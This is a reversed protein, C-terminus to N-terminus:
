AHAELDEPQPGVPLRRPRGDVQFHDLVKARAVGGHAASPLRVPRGRTKRPGRFGKGGGAYRRAHAVKVPGPDPALKKAGALKRAPHSAGIASTRSRERRSRWIM